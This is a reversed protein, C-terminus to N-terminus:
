ECAGVRLRTTHFHESRRGRKTDRGVGDPGFRFVWDQIVGRTMSGYYPLGGPVTAGSSRYCMPRTGNRGQLFKEYDWPYCSFSIDSERECTKGADWRAGCELVWTQCQRVNSASRAADWAAISVNLPGSGFDRDVMGSTYKIPFGGRKLDKDNFDSANLDLLSWLFTVQSFLVFFGVARYLMFLASEKFQWQRDDDDGDDKKKANLAAVYAHRSRRWCLISVSHINDLSMLSMHAKPDKLAEKRRERTSEITNPSKPAIETKKDDQAIPQIDVPKSNPYVESAPTQYYPNVFIGYSADGPRVPEPEDRVVDNRELAAGYLEKNPMVAVMEHSSM